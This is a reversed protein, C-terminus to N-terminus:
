ATKVSNDDHRERVSMLEIIKNQIMTMCNTDFLTNAGPYFVYRRWPSYWRIEGLYSGWTISHVTVKRTKAHSQVERFELRLLTPPM